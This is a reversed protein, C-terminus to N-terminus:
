MPEYVQARKIVLSLGGQAKVLYQAKLKITEITISNSCLISNTKLSRIQSTNISSNKIPNFNKKTFGQIITSLIETGLIANM